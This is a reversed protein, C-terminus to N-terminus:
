ILENPNVHKVLGLNALVEYNKNELSNPLFFFSPCSFSTKLVYRMPVNMLRESQSTKAHKWISGSIFTRKHVDKYTCKQDTHRSAQTFFVSHDIQSSFKWKSDKYPAWKLPPSTKKSM